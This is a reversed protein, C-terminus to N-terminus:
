EFIKGAMDYLSGREKHKIDVYIHLQDIFEKYTM